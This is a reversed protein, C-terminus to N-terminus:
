LARYQVRVCRRWYLLESDTVSLPLRGVVDGVRGIVYVYLWAALRDLRQIDSVRLGSGVDGTNIMETECM